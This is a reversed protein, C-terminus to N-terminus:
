HEEINRFCTLIFFLKWVKADFNVGIISFLTTSQRYLIKSRKKIPCMLGGGSDGACTDSKGSKWGACLMNQSILLEKYARKCIKHAVLPLKAEHLIPVGYSHRTDTKGWGMVSCLKGVKPKKSPLCAVPLRVSRPLQLLAIDNDVTKIEFNPHVFMKYVTQENNLREDSERLDHTNLRVKLQKRICHSATLVWRPGILTGGCFVEGFENMIAVHWPWKYKPAENGGIIKLMQPKSFTIGCKPSPAKPERTIYQNSNYSYLYNRGDLEQNRQKSELLHLVWLECSTRERYCYATERQIYKKCRGPKKCKRVRYTRCEPSCDIWKSWKTWIDSPAQKILYSRSANVHVVHFDIKKKIKRRCRKKPCEREEYMRSNRCSPSICTKMRRQMCDICRTWKTWETYAYDLTKTTRNRYGMTPGNIDEFQRHFNRTAAHNPSLYTENFINRQRHHREQYKSSGLCFLYILVFLVGFLNCM